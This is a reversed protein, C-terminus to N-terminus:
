EERMALGVAVIFSANEEDAKAFRKPDRTVHTWPNGILTEVGLDTTIQSVLGPMKATGGSLIISTVNEQSYRSQFFMVARKMEEAIMKYLPYLTNYVKGELKEKDLGYAKKYEEAQPMSFSFDQALGRTFTTGGTPISRTFAIVGSKVISLDTTLAGINVIMVTQPREAVSPILARTASIIETEMAFAELDAMDLIKNYREIVGKPAAVLLIDLKKNGDKDKAEGVISFDMNVEELPLPIYQEAEWKIASALERESLPPVQIIRTFVNTEPLAVAVEKNKVGGERFLKKISAAVAEHDVSSESSLGQAPVPTMGISALRFGSKGLHELQVYKVYQSGVDLGVIIKAM